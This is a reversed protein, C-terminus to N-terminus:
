HISNQENYSSSPTVFRSYYYNYAFTHGFGQTIQRPSSLGLRLREREQFFRQTQILLGKDWQLDKMYKAAVEPLGGREEMEVLLLEQWARPLRYPPKQQGSLRLYDGIHAMVSDNRKYLLDFLTIQELNELSCPTQKWLERFELERVGNLHTYGNPIRLRERQIKRLMCSAEPLLESPDGGQQLIASVAAYCAAQKRYFLTKGLLRIYKDALAYQHCTLASFVSQELMFYNMGESEMENLIQEYVFTHNGILRGRLISVKRRFPTPFDDLQGYIEPVRYYDFFNDTLSHTGLLAVRTYDALEQRFFIEQPSMGAYLTNRGTVVDDIACPKSFWYDNVVQLAERYRGETLLRDTKMLIRNFGYEKLGKYYPQRAFSISIQCFAFVAAWFLPLAFSVATKWGPFSAGNRKKGNLGLLRRCVFSLLLCFLLGATVSFAMGGWSRYFQECFSASFDALGFPQGPYMSLSKNWPMFCALFDSHFTFFSNRGRSLLLEYFFLTNGVLLLVAAVYPLVCVIKKRNM